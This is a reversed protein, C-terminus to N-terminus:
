SAWRPETMTSWHRFSQLRWELMWEPENKKRSILRIIDENLGPPATDSEVETYFGAEYGKKLLAEVQKTGRSMIKIRHLKRRLRLDGERQSQQVPLKCEPRRARLRTGHRRSFGPAGSRGGTERGAVRFSSGARGRKRRGRGRLRPRLLRDRVGIRLGAAQRQGALFNRVHAAARETLTVAM